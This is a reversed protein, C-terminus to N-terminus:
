IYYSQILTIIATGGGSLFTTVIFVIFINLSENKYSRNDNDIIKSMEKDICIKIFRVICGVDIVSGLALLLGKMKEIDM